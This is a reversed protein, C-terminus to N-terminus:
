LFAFAYNESISLFNNQHSDVGAGMSSIARSIIEM